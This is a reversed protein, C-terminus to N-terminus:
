FRACSAKKYGDTGFGHAGGARLTEAPPLESVHFRRLYRLLDDSLGIPYVVRSPEPEAEVPGESRKPIAWTWIKEGDRVIYGDSELGALGRRVQRPDYGTDLALDLIRVPALIGGREMRVALFMGGKRTQESAFCLDHLSLAWLVRAKEVTMSGDQAAKRTRAKCELYFEGPVVGAAVLHAPVGNGESRAQKRPISHPLNSNSM